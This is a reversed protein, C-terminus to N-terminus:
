KSASRGDQFFRVITYFLEKVHSNNCPSFKSVDSSFYAFGDQQHMGNKVAVFAVHEKLRIDKGGVRVLTAGSIEHPYTLTVFLSTGRNDIEGFLRQGDSLCIESLQRAAIAADADTSFEVLFDRTMRPHIVNFRIRALRLFSAHDRLRYYFKLRDYRKQSLGTAVLFSAGPINIVEGLITDYLKLMEEVPDHGSSVYWEPNQIAVDEQLPRSNLFYHHQIHAGANLFLTSFNPQKRRFLSLHIDHLLLDLVLAGRWRRTRSGAILSFYTLWHRVRGFRLLAIAIILASSPALRAKSNDGVAQSIAKTLARSWWSSDPATRTWPDPLFYAPRRLRNTANMPSVCGVSMGMDEVVEFIQRLDHHVIDGLRFVRHDDFSKGTHVSVWQIWPEINQYESECRTRIGGSRILLRLNPLDVHQLYKEVVDFNIENLEVLILRRQVM